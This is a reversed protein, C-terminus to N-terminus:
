SVRSVAAYAEKLYGPPLEVGGANGSLPEAIFAAPGGAADGLWGGTGPGRAVLRDVVERVATAYRSGASAEEGEARGGSGTTAASAPSQVETAWGSNYPFAGRYPNPMPVLHVWPPRTERARPNDNLTTSIEDSATTVGHYAGELCVVDRRGTFTRALRM